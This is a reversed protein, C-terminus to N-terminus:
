KWVMDLIIKPSMKKKRFMRHQGIMCIRRGGALVGELIKKREARAPRAGYVILIVIGITYARAVRALGCASRAGGAFVGKKCVGGVMCFLFISIPM